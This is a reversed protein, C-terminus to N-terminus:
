KLLADLIIPDIWGLPVITVYENTTLIVLFNITTVNLCLYSTKNYKFFIHSLSFPFFMFTPTTIVNLLYLTGFYNLLFKIKWGHFDNLWKNLLFDSRLTNEFMLTFWLDIIHFYIKLPRLAIFGSWEGQFSFYMFCKFMFGYTFINTFEEFVWMVLILYVWCAYCVGGKMCLMGWRVYM